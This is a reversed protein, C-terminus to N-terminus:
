KVIAKALKVFDQGSLKEGRVDGPKGLTKAILSALEEKDDTVLRSSVSMLSNVLTKRRQGFAAKILLLANKTEEPSYLPPNALEIRVVASDVKPKPNFNGATVTFLRKVNGYLSIAATIAGYEASGVPATLRQAVEKQIMVTIFRFGANEEILKMIIPTTIYYPLNACVSVTYKGNESLTEALAKVDTEMVDANIVNVNDYDALSEALIPILNEDIEVATVKAFRKCLEKTLIGTGPGIELIAEPLKEPSDPDTPLDTCGDAIRSPIRSDTLFNQGYKKQFKFNHKELLEKDNRNM